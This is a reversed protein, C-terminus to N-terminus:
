FHLLLLCCRAARFRKQHAPVRRVPHNDARQQGGSVHGVKGAQHRVSDAAVEGSDIRREAGHEPGGDRRAFPRALVANVAKDFGIGAAIADPRDGGEAAAGFGEPVDEILVVNARNDDAPPRGMGDLWNVAHHHRVQVVMGPLAQGQAREQGVGHMRGFPCRTQGVQADRRRFQGAFHQAQEHRFIILYVLALVLPQVGEGLDDRFGHRNVRRRGFGQFVGFPVEGSDIVVGDLVEPVAKHVVMRRTQAPYVFGTEVDVLVNDCGRVAVVIGHESAQQLQGARIRVHNDEAIVAEVGIRAAGGINGGFHGARSHFVPM